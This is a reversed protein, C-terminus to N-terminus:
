VVSVAVFRVLEVATTQVGEGALGLVGVLQVTVTVSVDAPVVTVGVPTIVRVCFGADEPVKVGAALQVREEPVHM